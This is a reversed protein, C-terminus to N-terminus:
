ADARWGIRRSRAGRACSSRRTGGSGGADRAWACGARGRPAADASRRTAVDRAHEGAQEGGVAAGARVRREAIGSPRVADAHLAVVPPQGVVRRAADHDRDAADGRPRSPGHAITIGRRAGQRDEHADPGVRVAHARGPAGPRARPPRAADRVVLPQADVEAGIGPEVHREALPHRPRPPREAREADGCAAGPSCATSAGVGARRGRAPCPAARRPPPRARRRGRRRPSSSPRPTRRDSTTPGPPKGLGIGADRKGAPADPHARHRRRRGRHHSRTPSSSTRARAAPRACPPPPSRRREPAHAPARRAVRHESSPSAAPATGASRGTGGARGLALELRARPLQERAPQATSAAARAASGDVPPFGRERAQLVPSRGSPREAGRDSLAEAGVLASSGRRHGGVAGETAAGGGRDVPESARRASCSRAARRTPVCGTGRVARPRDWAAGVDPLGGARRAAPLRARADLDQRVPRLDLAGRGGRAAHVPLRPADRLVDPRDRLAPSGGACWAASRTRRPSACTAARGVVARRADAAARPSPAHVGRHRGLWDELHPTTVGEVDRITGPGHARDLM